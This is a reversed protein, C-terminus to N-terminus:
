EKISEDELGTNTNGRTGFVVCAIKVRDIWFLKEM